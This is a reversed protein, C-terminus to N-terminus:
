LGRSVTPKAKNIACLKAQPALENFFNPINFLISDISDNLSLKKIVGHDILSINIQSRSFPYSIEFMRDLIADRRHKTM